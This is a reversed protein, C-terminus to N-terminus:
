KCEDSWIPKWGPPVKICNVSVKKRVLKSSPEQSAVKQSQLNNGKDVLQKKSESPIFREKGPTLSAQVDVRSSKSESKPDSRVKVTISGIADSSVAAAPPPVYGPPVVVIMTQGNGNEVTATNVDVTKTVEQSITVTATPTTVTVTATATVKEPVSAVPATVPPLKAESDKSGSFFDCGGLFTSLLLLFFLCLVKKM